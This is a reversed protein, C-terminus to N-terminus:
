FVPLYEVDNFLVFSICVHKSVFVQLPGVEAMFGMKYLDSPIYFFIPYYRTLRLLSQM